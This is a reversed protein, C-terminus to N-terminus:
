LKLTLVNDKQTGPPKTPYAAAKPEPWPGLTRPDFGAHSERSLPSNGEEKVGREQEHERKRESSYVFLIKKKKFFM